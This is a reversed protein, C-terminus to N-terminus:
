EEAGKDIKESQAKAQNRQRVKNKNMRLNKREDFAMVAEKNEPKIWPAVQILGEAKLKDNYTKYKSPM